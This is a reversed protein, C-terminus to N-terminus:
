AMPRCLLLLWGRGGHADNLFQVRVVFVFILLMLIGDLVGSERMPRFACEQAVCGRPKSAHILTGIVWLAGGLMAALGCWRVFPISHSM